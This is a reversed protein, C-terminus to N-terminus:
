QGRHEEGKRGGRRNKPGAPRRRRVGVRKLIEERSCTWCSRCARLTGDAGRPHGRLIISNAEELDEPRWVYARHAPLDDLWKVQEGELRGRPGKLEAWATGADRGEGITLDPYGRSLTDGVLEYSGEAGRVQKRSDSSHFVRRGAAGCTELLTNQLETEGFLEM